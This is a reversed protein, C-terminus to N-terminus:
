RWTSSTAPALGGRVDIPSGSADVWAREVKLGDGGVRWDAKEQIGESSLMLFLKGDPKGGVELELSKAESARALAFTVDSSKKAGAVTPVPRAPKGNVSLTVPGFRSANGAVRKGLGTISWSLEQTTYWGSAHARLGEAVMNALTEGAPDSGFLDQFTSLMFARRRRDSYFTWGNKREELIASTDPSKLEKEYRRDGALWLAAQLMYRHEAKEGRVDRPLGDLLKQVRAKKGKGALALVYQVYPEHNGRWSDYTGKEAVGELWAVAEDVRAKPVAYGLKTADLLLHTAYASGWETPHTDGPWYGFGGSPTQMSLIRDIGHQAM